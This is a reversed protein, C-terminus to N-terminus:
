QNQRDDFSRIKQQNRLLRENKCHGKWPYTLSIQCHDVNTRSYWRKKVRNSGWGKTSRCLHFTPWVEVQHKIVLKMSLRRKMWNAFNIPSWTAHLKATVEAVSWKISNQIGCSIHWFIHVFNNWQLTSKTQM